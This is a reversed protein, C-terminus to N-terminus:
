LFNVCYDPKPLDIFRIDGNELDYLFNNVYNQLCLSACDRRADFEPSKILNMVEWYRDSKVIDRFREDIINSIFFKSHQKDFFSGCPFVNGNGSMQLMLPAGLCKSYRRNNGERIKSWKVVIRTAESSMSEARKLEDTLAEYKTYDIGLDGRENDSCHKIVLYDVGLSLASEALEVLQDIYEPLLVMQMGIDCQLNNSKKIQVCKKITHIVKNLCGIGCGHIEQYRSIGSVNFRIYTLAPLIEELKDDLLLFGNTGLAMDLGNDKGHKIFDYINPNMTSEGDSVLSIAKVGIESADDLFDFLVKKNLYRQDNHQLHCFGFVCNYSCAKSLSMDITIPAVREGRLLAEIRERHYNCRHSDLHIKEV